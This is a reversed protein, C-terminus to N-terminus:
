KEDRADSIEKLIIVAKEYQDLTLQGSKYGAQELVVDIDTNLAAATALLTQKQRLTALSANDKKGTNSDDQGKTEEHYENTDADKTDDICFLGNLAYKRAYSSATGTVQPEDMGKKSKPIEAFANTEISASADLRVADMDLRATTKIFLRDGYAVVDDTLTLTAGYKHCLPKVAELIDEASRYKYKGFDNYQGKPVKLEEQIKNLIENM